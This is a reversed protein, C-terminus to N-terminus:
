FLIPKWIKGKTLRAWFKNLLSAKGGFINNSFHM